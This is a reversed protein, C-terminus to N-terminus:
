KRKGGHKGKAAQKHKAKGKRLLGALLAAASMPNGAPGTMGPMPPAPIAPNGSGQGPGTPDM